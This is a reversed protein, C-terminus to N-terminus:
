DSPRARTSHTIGNRDGRSRGTRYLNTKTRVTVVRNDMDTVLFSDHPAISHHFESLCIKCLRHLAQREADVFTTAFDNDVQVIALRVGPSLRCACTCDLHVIVNGPNCRHITTDHAYVTISRRLAKTDPDNSIVNGGAVYDNGFRKRLRVLSVLHDDASRPSFITDQVQATRGNAPHTIGHCSNQVTISPDESVIIRPFCAFEVFSLITNPHIWLGNWCDYTNSSPDVDIRKSVVRDEDISM